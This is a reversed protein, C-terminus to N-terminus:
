AMGGARVVLCCLAMGLVAAILQLHVEGCVLPLTSIGGYRGGVKEAAQVDAASVLRAGGGRLAALKGAQQEKQKTLEAVQRRMEELSLVSGAAAAEAAASPPLSCARPM